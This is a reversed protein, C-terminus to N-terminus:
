DGFGAVVGGIGTPDPGALLMGGAKVFARELEMEKKLSRSAPQMVRQALYAAQAQSSMVDLVRQQLPPRDSSYAEM